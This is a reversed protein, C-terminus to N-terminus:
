INTSHVSHMPTHATYVRHRPTHATYVIDLHIPQTCEIDLHIAIIVPGCGQDPVRFSPEKDLSILRFERAFHEQRLINRTNRNNAPLEKIGNYIFKAKHIGAKASESFPLSALPPDM